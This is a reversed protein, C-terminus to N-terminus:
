PKIYAVTLAASSAIQAAQMLTAWNRGGIRPAIEPVVISDGPKLTENLPNGSWWSDSNNRASLVSGDARIVFVSKKDAMPTLGGAQSLYWRASRGPIYAVATPNFVQGTVTVYNTTKPIILVDGDRLPIDAPTNRWARVDPRIHVVVRGVPENAELQDLTAQTQGIATLKGNRQDVDGAEPLARLYVQEAKVRGVLELHAKMELERVERRILVAGYPYAQSGFGGSRAL